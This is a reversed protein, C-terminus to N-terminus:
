GLAILDNVAYPRLEDDTRNDNPNLERWKMIHDKIQEESIGHITPLLGRFFTGM